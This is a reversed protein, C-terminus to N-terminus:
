KFPNYFNGGYIKLIFGGLLWYEANSNWSANFTKKKM